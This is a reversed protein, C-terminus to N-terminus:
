TLRDFNTTTKVKIKGQLTFHPKELQLAAAAPRPPPLPPRTSMLSEQPNDEPNDGPIFVYLDDYQDESSGSGLEPMTHEAETGLENDKEEQSIENAEAGEACQRHTQGSEHRLEPNQTGISSSSQIIENLCVM